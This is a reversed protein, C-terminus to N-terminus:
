QQKSVLSSKPPRGRRSQTTLKKALEKIHNTENLAPKERFWRELETLVYLEEDCIDAEGSAIKERLATAKHQIEEITLQEFNIKPKSLVAETTSVRKKRAPSDDKGNYRSYLYGMMVDPNTRRFLERVVLRYVQKDCTDATNTNVLNSFELFKFTLEENTMKELSNLRPEELRGATVNVQKM